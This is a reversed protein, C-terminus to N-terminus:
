MDPSSPFRKGSGPGPGLTMWETPWDNYRSFKSSLPSFLSMHLFSFFTTFHYFWGQFYEYEYIFDPLVALGPPLIWILDSDSWGAMSSYCSSIDSHKAKYWRHKRKRGM